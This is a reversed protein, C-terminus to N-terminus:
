RARFSWRSAAWRSSRRLSGCSSEPFSSTSTCPCDADPRRGCKCSGNCPRRRRNAPAARLRRSAAPGPRVPASIGASSHASCKPVIAYSTNQITPERLGRLARTRLPAAAASHRHAAAPCRRYHPMARRRGVTDLFSIPIILSFPPGRRGLLDDCHIRSRTASAPAAPVTTASLPPMSAATVTAKHWRANGSSVSPTM